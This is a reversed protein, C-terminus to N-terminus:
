ESPSLPNNLKCPPPAKLLLQAQSVPVAAPTTLSTAATATTPPPPLQVAVASPPTAGCPLGPDNQCPLQYPTQQVTASSTPPQAVTSPPVSTYLYQMPPATQDNSVVQLAGHEPVVPFPTQRTPVILKAVAEMGAIFSETNPSSRLREGVVETLCFFNM